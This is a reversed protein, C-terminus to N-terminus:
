SAQELSALAAGIVGADDGLTAAVVDCRYWPSRAPFAMLAHCAAAGLGGGLVVCEPDLAAVLSDIAARLPGAWLTLVSNATQDGRRLLDDVTTAADLGAMAIHRGLATGSSTAEVCGRRGCLCSPGNLDVTVHGLQGATARGRVIRGSEMIAGGIGTGITLLVVNALDRAAGVRAEAVLAMNADNDIFVRRQGANSLRDALAFGSLDVFGGSFIKGTRADVRGPVGIGISAGLDAALAAIMADIEAIVAGATKPTPLMRRALVAGAESVAAARLKTGGIDVGIAHRM